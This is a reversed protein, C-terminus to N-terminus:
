NEIRKYSNVDFSKNSIEDYIVMLSKQIAYISINLLLLITSFVIVIYAWGPVATSKTLFITTSFLKVLLANTSTFIVFIFLILTSISSIKTPLDSLRMFMSWKIRRQYSNENKLKQAYNSKISIKKYPYSSKYALELLLINKRANRLITNLARRSFIIEKRDLPSIPINAFLRFSSYLILSSLKNKFKVQSHKQQFLFIDYSNKYLNIEKLINVFDSPQYPDLIYTYDGNARSIGTFISIDWSEWNAITLVYCFNKLESNLKLKKQLYEEIRIPIVIIIEIDKFLDLFQNKNHNLYSNLYDISSKSECPFLFSSFDQLIINSRNIDM